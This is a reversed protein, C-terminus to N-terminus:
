YAEVSLVRGGTDVRVDLLGRAGYVVCRYFERGNRNVFEVSRISGLGQCSAGELVQPPVASLSLPQDYESGGYFYPQRYVYAPEVDIWIHREYDWHRHHDDRDRYRDYDRYEYRSDHHRDDHRAYDHHGDDHRFDDHHREDRVDYTHHDHSTYDRRESSHGSDHHEAHGDRNALADHRTSFARESSGRSDSRFGSASQNASRGEHAVHGRESSAIWREGRATEGRAEAAPAPHGDRAFTPAALSLGACVALALMKGHGMM